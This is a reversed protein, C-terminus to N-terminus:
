QYRQNIYIYIYVKVGQLKQKNPHSEILRALVFNVDEVITLADKNETGVVIVKPMKELIFDELRALDQIKERKDMHLNDLKAGESTNLRIQERSLRVTLKDLRIFDVLDGDGDVCACVSSQAFGGAGTMEEEGM